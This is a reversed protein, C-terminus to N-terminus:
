ETEGREWHPVQCPELRVNELGSRRMADRGWEVARAAGDSGALRHPAVTCLESLFGHAGSGKLGEALLEPEYAPGAGREAPPPARDPALDACRAGLVALVLAPAKRPLDMARLPYRLARPPTLASGGTESGPRHPPLVHFSHRPAGSM